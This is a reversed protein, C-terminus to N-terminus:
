AFVLGSILVCPWCGIIMSSTFSININPVFLYLQLRLVCCASVILRKITFILPVTLDLQTNPVARYGGSCYFKSDSAWFSQFQLGPAWLSNLFFCLGGKVLVCCASVILLKITFILPVTFDLQTNPVARYGGSYYFKSDSAWLSQFQLGPAWLCNLCVYVM